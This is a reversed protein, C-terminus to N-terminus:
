DSAEIDDKARHVEEILKRITALERRLAVPDHGREREAVKEGIRSFRAERLIELLLDATEETVRVRAMPTRSM